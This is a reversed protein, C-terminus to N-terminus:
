RAPWIQRRSGSTVNEPMNLITHHNGPGTGPGSRRPPRGLRLAQGDGRGHAAARAPTRLQCADPLISGIWWPVRIWPLRLREAAKIAQTRMHLAPPRTRQASRWACRRAVAAVVAALGRSSRGGFGHGPRIRGL